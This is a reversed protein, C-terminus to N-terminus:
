TPEKTGPRGSHDAPRVPAGAREFSHISMVGAYGLLAAAGLGASAAAGTPVAMAFVVAALALALLLGGLLLGYRDM